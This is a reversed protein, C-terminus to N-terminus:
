NGFGGILVPMVMFFVMVFAHGTVIVNFLQHDGGLIQNGPLALETRILVSFATGVV